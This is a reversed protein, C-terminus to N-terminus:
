RVKLVVVTMDDHQPHTGAFGEVEGLLKQILNEASLHYNKTITMLFADDGFEELKSNMAETFGDTYFVLTTGSTLKIVQEQLTQEFISGKELGLAIGDTSLFESSGDKNNIMLGPNHGARAFTLTSKQTDLIAYFMSVFSNKEINRYLLRNVKSLVVKPSVNEDGHSQLIGKTLTMYIAAPVGKGSVDGIALGIKTDSLYVYDYYDGGVEKAPRCVGAIEFGEIEPNTKPLLGIQVNRAIELEKAMRERESIRAIHKPLGSYSYQFTDKKIFSMIIIFIPVIILLILLYASISHWSNTSVYLPISVFIIQSSINIAILTLLDFKFYFWALLMGVLFTISFSLIYNSLHPLNSLIFVVATWATASLLISLWKKNWKNFTVNIIFFRIVVESLLAIIIANKIITILPFMHQFGDGGPIFVRAIDSNQGTFLDVIVLYFAAILFGIAGGRLLSTGTALTFFKKNLVSDISNLKEANLRRAYAEGVAWSTFLLVGLFSNKILVEYFFALIQTNRFSMNGLFIGSGSVPFENIAGVLGISFIIIFLNRGLSLSVEGDHYKRLFLILAFVFLFVLVIFQILVIFTGETTKNRVIAQVHEPMFYQFQYGGVQNGQIYFTLRLDGEAFEAKKEWVFTYDTRNLQRNQQSKKMVFKSLDFSTNHSIYYRAMALARAEIESPLTLTDPVQRMYGIITGQPSIWINYRTQPQDTPLNKLYRIEWRNNPMRDDAIIKEVNDSGISKNLYTMTYYDVYRTIVAQYDTLDVHDKKLRDRSIEEAQYRDIKENLCFNLDSPLLIVVLIVAVVLIMWWKLHNMRM